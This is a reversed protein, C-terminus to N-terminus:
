NCDSDHDSVADELDDQASKLTEFESACDDHGDSSSVCSTYLGLASSIDSIAANYASIAEQCGSPSAVSASGVWTVACLVIVFTRGSTMRWMM